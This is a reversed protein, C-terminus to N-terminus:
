IMLLILFDSQRAEKHVMIVATLIIAEVNRVAEVEEQQIEKMVIMLVIIVM